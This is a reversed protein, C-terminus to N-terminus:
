TKVIYSLTAAVTAPGSALTVQQTTTTPAGVALASINPDNVSDKKIGVVTVITPASALALDSYDLNFTEEGIAIARERLFSGSPINVDGGTENPNPALLM